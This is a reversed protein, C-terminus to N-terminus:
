ILSSETKVALVSAFFVSFLGAKDTNRGTLHGEENLFSGINKKRSGRVTFINFSVFLYSKIPGVTSSLELELQYKVVCIRKRCCHVAERYNKWTM